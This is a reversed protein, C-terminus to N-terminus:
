KASTNTNDKWQPNIDTQCCVLFDDSPQGGSIYQAGHILFLHKGENNSTVIGSAIVSTTEQFVSSDLAHKDGQM